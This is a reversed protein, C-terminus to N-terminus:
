VFHLMKIVFGGSCHSFHEQCTSIHDLVHNYVFYLFCPRLPRRISSTVTMETVSCNIVNTCNQFLVEPPVSILNRLAFSRRTSDSDAFASVM